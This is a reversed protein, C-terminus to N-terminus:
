GKKKTYDWGYKKSMQKMMRHYHTIADREWRANAHAKSSSKNVYKLRERDLARDMKALDKSISTLSGWGSAPRKISFTYNPTVARIEKAGLAVASQIDAPSFSNGISLIGKKGLARPHNHTIISDRPIQASDYGVRAGAGQNTYVKRGSADFVHLSEDKNMRIAAETSLINKKMVNTYGQETKGTSGGGGASGSAAGAQYAERSTGKYGSQKAPEKAM